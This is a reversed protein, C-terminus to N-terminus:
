DFWEGEICIIKWVDEISCSWSSDKTEFRHKRDGKSYTAVVGKVTGDELCILYEWGTNVEHKKVVRAESFM